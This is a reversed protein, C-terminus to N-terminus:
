CDDKGGLKEHDLLLKFKRAVAAVQIAEAATHMAYREIRTLDYLLADAPEDEFVSQKLGYFHEKICYVENFLEEVEEYEVGLGEHRSHLYGYQEIIRNFENNVAEEIEKLIPEIM